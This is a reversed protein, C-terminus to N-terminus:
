HARSLREFFVKMKEVDKIGPASEVGSALDIGWPKLRLAAELNSANLGGAMLWPIPRPTESDKYEQSLGASLFHPSLAAVRSWDFTNGTGGSRGKEYSDLLMAAASECHAQIMQVPQPDPAMRIGKIYPRGFGNCYAPSEDGQFQLMLQDSCELVPEVEQASQNFFLGVAQVFPPLASLIERCLGFDRVCRPSSPVFVMGVADAGLQAALYADDPRTIGCIKVRVAAADTDM